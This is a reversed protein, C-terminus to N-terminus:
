SQEPYTVPNSDFVEVKLAPEIAARGDDLDFPGGEEAEYGVRRHEAWRDRARKSLFRRSVTYTYGTGQYHAVGKYIREM